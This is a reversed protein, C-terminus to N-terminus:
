IKRVEPGAVVSFLNGQPGKLIVVRAEKDIAEITASVTVVSAAVGEGPATAAVAAAGAGPQQAFAPAAACVAAVVLAAIPTRM